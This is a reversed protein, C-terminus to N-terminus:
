FHGGALGPVEGRGGGAFCLWKVIQCGRVSEVLGDEEVRGREWIVDGFHGLNAGRGRRQEAGGEEDAGAAGGVIVVEHLALGLRM